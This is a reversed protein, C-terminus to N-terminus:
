QAEEYEPMEIGGVAEDTSPDDLVMSLYVKTAAVICDSTLRSDQAEQQPSIRVLLDKVLCLFLSFASM